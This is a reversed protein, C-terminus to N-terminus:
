ATTKGPFLRERWKLIPKEFWHYSAASTLVTGTFTILTFLWFTSWGWEKVPYGNYSFVKMFVHIWVLHYVYLGYSIRGLWSLVHRDRIKLFLNDQPIFVLLLGAFVVSFVTYKLFEPFIDHYIFIDKQFYLMTLVGLVYGLRVFTPISKVWSAVRQYNKAVLYGLLGSIAFYDLNTFLDNNSVNTTGYITSEYFRFVWALLITGGLFWPIGKLRIFFFALMWLIYFHEEICLSWFVPLPTLKPGGDMIISKYNETFTLSFRWDPDYGGGNMHLGWEQAFDPPLILVVIVVLYFLPWIRFARRVFFRKLDIKGKTLREYTLIYTILFGSLVFFFSVGTGGGHKIHDRFWVMAPTGLLAEPQPLHFLFVKFFAFFRLADFTHFHIKGVSM